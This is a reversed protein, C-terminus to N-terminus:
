ALAASKSDAPLQVLDESRAAAEAAAEREEEERDASGDLQSAPICDFLFQAALDLVTAILLTTPGLV